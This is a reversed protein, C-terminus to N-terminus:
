DYRASGAPESSRSASRSTREKHQWKRMIATFCRSPCPSGPLAGFGLEPDLVVRQQHVWRLHVTGQVEGLEVGAIQPLRQRGFRPPLLAVLLRPPLGGYARHRVHGVWGGDQLDVADGLASRTILSATNWSLSASPRRIVATRLGSPRYEPLFIQSASVLPRHRDRARLQPREPRNIRRSRLRPTSWSRSPTLTM